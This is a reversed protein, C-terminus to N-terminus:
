SAPAAGYVWTNFLGALDRGAARQMALQFDRSSVTRGANARTYGRIGSWFAREGLETRLTHLFVAAKSYQIGRRVRTSPYTGNWAIPRDFGAEASAQWRTRAIGIERDYAARGWRQEKWAATMFVALGESLWLDSWTAPTILNGWWQHSLEHAPAWDDAPDTLIPRAEAGGLIAFGWAEQAESGAVLVQTYRDHPLRVGARQEFFALMAGTDAFIREAEGQTATSTIVDLRVRGRAPLPVQRWPGAAFGFLYPSVPRRERWRLTVQGGDAAETEGQGGSAAAWGQPVTVRLDFTARDGPRDQDCIMWDCTFYGTRVGGDAFVMGRAPRGAFSLQIDVRERRALARPLTLILRDGVRRHAIDADGLRATLITLANGTFSLERVGDALATLTIREGGTLVQAPVEPTLAIEYGTVEFLPGDPEPTAASLALPLAAALGAALLARSPLSM